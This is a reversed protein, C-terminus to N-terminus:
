GVFEFEIFLRSSNRFGFEANKEERIIRTVSEVKSDPLHAENVFFGLVENQMTVKHWDSSANQYLCVKMEWDDRNKMPKMLDILATKLEVSQNSSSEMLGELDLLVKNQDLIVFKKNSFPALVCNADLSFSTARQNSIWLRFAEKSEKEQIYIDLKVKETKTQNLQRAIELDSFSSYRQTEGLEYALINYDSKLDKFDSRLSDLKIALHQNSELTKHLENHVLNYKAVPVCAVLPLLM